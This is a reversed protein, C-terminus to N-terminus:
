RRANTSWKRSLMVPAVFTAFMGAVMAVYGVWHPLPLADNFVAIALLVMVVGSIRAANIAM